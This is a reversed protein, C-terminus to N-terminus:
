YFHEILEKYRVEGFYSIEDIDIEEVTKLENDNMYKKIRIAIKLGIGTCEESIDNATAEYIPKRVISNESKSPINAYILLSFVIILCFIFLLNRHKNFM